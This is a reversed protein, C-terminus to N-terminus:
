EIRKNFCLLWYKWELNNLGFKSVDDNNVNLVRIPIIDYNQYKPKNGDTVIIVCMDDAEYIIDDKKIYNVDYDVIRESYKVLDEKCDSLAALEQQYIDKCVREYDFDSTCGVLILLCIICLGIILIRSIKMNEKGGNILENYHEM